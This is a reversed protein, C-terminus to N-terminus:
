EPNEIRPALLYTGRTAGDWDARVPYDTGLRLVVKESKVSKLFAQLYDLPFLSTHQEDGSMEVECGDAPRFVLSAKDVDGEGLVTLGERTVTLRVHDTISELAKTAELLDTAPITVTAPLNLTPVRPDAMGSTDVVAMTRMIPGIEVTIRDKEDPDPLDLTVGVEADKKALRLAEKLKTMDMGFAIGYDIRGIGEARREFGDMGDLRLDVMAVHAADVALVHWGDGTLHVRVEDVLHDLQAVFAKLTRADARFEFRRPPRPPTPPRPPEPEEIETEPQLEQEAEDAEEGGELDESPEPLPEEEVTEPAELALADAEAAALARIADQVDEPVDTEDTEPARVPERPAVKRAPGLLKEIWEPTPM